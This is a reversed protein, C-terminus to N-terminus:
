GDYDEVLKLFYDIDALGYRLFKETERTTDEMYDHALFNRIGAIYVFKHAFKRPIINYEGLKSISDSYTSPKPYEKQIIILDAIDLVIEAVIYVCREVVKRVEISEKLESLFRSKNDSLYKYEGKLRQIKSFLVDNM